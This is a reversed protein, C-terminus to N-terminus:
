GLALDRSGLTRSSRERGQASPELRKPTFVKMSQESVTCFEWWSQLQKGQPLGGDLASNGGGRKVYLKKKLIM